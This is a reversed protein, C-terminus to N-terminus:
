NLIIKNKRKNRMCRYCKWSQFCFLRKLKYENMMCEYESLWLCMQKQFWQIFQITTYISNQKQLHKYNKCENWRTNTTHQQLQHFFFFCNYKQNEPVFCCNFILFFWLMSCNEEKSDQWWLVFVLPLSTCCYNWTCVIFSRLRLHHSWCNRDIPFCELAKM